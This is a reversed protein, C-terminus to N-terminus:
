KSKLESELYQVLQDKPDRLALSCILGWLIPEQFGALVRWVGLLALGALIALANGGVYLAISAYASDGGLLSGMLIEVLM